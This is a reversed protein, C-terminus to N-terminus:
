KRNAGLFILFFFSGSLHRRCIYRKHKHTYYLICTIDLPPCHLLLNIHGEEGTCGGQITIDPRPNSVKDIKTYGPILQCRTQRIPYGLIQQSRTQGIPYGPRLLCIAEGGPGGEREREKKGGREERGRRVM